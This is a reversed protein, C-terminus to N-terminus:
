SCVRPLPSARLYVALKEHRESQFPTMEHVNPNIRRILMMAGLIAFLYPFQFFVWSKRYAQGALMEDHLLLQMEITSDSLLGSLGFHVAVLGALSCFNVLFDLIFFLLQDCLHVLCFCALFMIRMILMMVMIM